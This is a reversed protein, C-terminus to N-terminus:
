PSCIIYARWSQIFVIPGNHESLYFLVAMAHCSYLQGDHRPSYFTITIIPCTTACHLRPQSLLTLCSSYSLWSSVLPIHGDHDSLFLLISGNYEFTNLTFCSSLFMINARWPWGLLTSMLSIREKKFLFIEM